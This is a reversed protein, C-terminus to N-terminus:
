DNLGEKFKNRLYNAAGTLKDVDRLRLNIIEYEMDNGRKVSSKRCINLHSLAIKYESCVAVIESVERDDKNKKIVLYLINM